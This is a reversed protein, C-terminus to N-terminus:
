EKVVKKNYLNMAVDIEDNVMRKTADIANEFAKDMDKQDEKSFHGLVYDALDYQPPKKGVGVRIRMFEQTGLQAIIDKIGNHGGASGKKRIRLQGPDLEVDDYIVVLESTPDLKYFDIAERVSTGSLNMYTQPKLLLVKQSGIMGTGCIGKFKIQKMEINYNDALSTIVDFGVNHRTHEYKKTPNGLGVIVFM